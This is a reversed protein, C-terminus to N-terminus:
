GLSRRVCRDSMVRGGGLGASGPRPPAASSRGLHLRQYREKVSRTNINTLHSSRCSAAEGRQRDSDTIKTDRKRGRDGTARQLVKESGSPTKIGGQAGRHESCPDREGRDARGDQRKTTFNRVAERVGTIHKRNKKSSRTTLLFLRLCVCCSALCVVARVAGGSGQGRCRSVLGRCWSSVEVGRAM